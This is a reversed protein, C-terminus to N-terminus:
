LRSVWPVPLVAALGLGLVGTCGLYAGGVHLQGEAWKPAPRALPLPCLSGCMWLLSPLHALHLPLAMKYVICQIFGNSLRPLPVRMDREFLSKKPVPLGM